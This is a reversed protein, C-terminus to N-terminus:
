ILQKFHVMNKVSTGAPDHGAVYDYRKYNDVSSDM